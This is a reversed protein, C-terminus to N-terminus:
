RAWHLETRLRGLPRGALVKRAPRIAIIRQQIKTVCSSRSADGCGPSAGVESSTTVCNWDSLARVSEATRIRLAWGRLGDGVRQGALRRIM